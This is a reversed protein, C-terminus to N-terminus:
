QDSRRYRSGLLPLDRAATTKVYSYVQQDLSSIFGAIINFIIHKLDESHLISAHSCNPIIYSYKTNIISSNQEVVWDNEAAFFLYQRKNTNITTQIKDKLSVVFSSTLEMQQCSPYFKGVPSIKSAIKSGSFPSAICINMPIFLNHQFALYEAIYSTILGGMSHGIFIIPSDQDGNMLIIRLLQDVFYGISKGPKLAGSFYPRRIKLNFKGASSINGMNYFIFDQLPKLWIDSDLFGHVLYIVITQNQINKQSSVLDTKRDVLKSKFFTYSHILPSVILRSDFLRGSKIIPM